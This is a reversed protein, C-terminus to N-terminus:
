WCGELAVVCWFLPPQKDQATALMGSIPRPSEARSTVAAALIAGRESEREKEIDWKKREREVLRIMGEDVVIASLKGFYATEPSSENFSPSDLYRTARHGGTIVERWWRRKVICDWTRSSMTSLSFFRNRSHSPRLDEERCLELWSLIPPEILFLELEAHRTYGPSPPM